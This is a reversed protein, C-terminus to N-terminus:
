HPQSDPQLYPSFSQVDASGEAEEYGRGLCAPKLEAQLKQCVSIWRATQCEATPGEVHLVIIHTM